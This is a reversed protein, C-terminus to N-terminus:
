RQTPLQLYRRKIVDLSETGTNWESLIQQRLSEPNGQYYRLWKNDTLHHRIIKIRKLTDPATRFVPTETFSKSDKHDYQATLTSFDITIAYLRDTDNDPLFAEWRAFGLVYGQKRKEQLPVLHWKCKAARGWHNSLRYVGEETFYYNSGSKSTYQPQMPDLVERDVEQFVCFTHKHFNHRNYSTNPM